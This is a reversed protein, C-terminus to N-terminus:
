AWATAEARARRAGALARAMAAAREARDAPCTQRPLMPPAAAPLGAHGREANQSPHPTGLPSPSRHREGRDETTGNLLVFLRRVLLNWVAWVLGAQRGRVSRQHPHPTTHAAALPASVTLFRDWADERLKDFRYPEPRPRPERRPRQDDSPLPDPLEGRRHRGTRRDQQWGPSGYPGPDAPDHPRGGIEWDDGPRHRLHRPEHRNADRTQDHAPDSGSVRDLQAPSVATNQDPAAARNQRLSISVM